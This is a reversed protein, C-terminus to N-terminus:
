TFSHLYHRSYFVDGSTIDVHLPKRRTSKADHYLYASRRSSGYTGPTSVQHLLSQREPEEAERLACRFPLGDIWVLFSEIKVAGGSEGRAVLLDLAEMRQYAALSRACHGGEEHGARLCALFSRAEMCRVLPSGRDGVLQQVAYLEAVPPCTSEALGDMTNAVILERQLEALVSRMGFM